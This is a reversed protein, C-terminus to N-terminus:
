GFIGIISPIIMAVILLLIIATSILRKNKGSFFNM